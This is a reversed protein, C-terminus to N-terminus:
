ASHSLKRTNKKLRNIKRRITKAERQSAGLKQERLELIQAKLQRIQPKYPNAHESESLGMMDKITGLLTEKEMGSAGTIQPLENIALERLEKVTMKELPKKLQINLEESM